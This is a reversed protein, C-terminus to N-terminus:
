ICNIRTKVVRFGLAPSETNKLTHHIGNFDIECEEASGYYSGGMMPPMSNYEKMVPHSHLWCWEWINGCMDYLGFANPKKKGVAQLQDDSNGKTIPRSLDYSYWGVEDLNNSGAYKFDTNAKAAFKWEDETPLRYGNAKKNWHVKDGGSYLATYSANDYYCPVLSAQMSMANCYLLAQYYTIGNAPLNDGVLANEHQIGYTILDTQTVPYIGIYFSCPKSRKCKILKMEM